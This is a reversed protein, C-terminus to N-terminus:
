RAGQFRYGFKGAANHYIRPSRPGQPSPERASACQRMGCAHCTAGLDIELVGTSLSPTGVCIFSVDTAAVAGGAGSTASILGTDVGSSLLAGLGEEVIPNQGALILDVKSQNPDVGVVTHGDGAQCAASVVGVYGM